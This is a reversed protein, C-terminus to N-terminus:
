SFNHVTILVELGDQRWGVNSNGAVTLIAPGNDGSFGAKGNGAITTIIGDKGVKRIRNKPRHSIFLNGESDVVVGDVWPLIVETAKKGDGIGKFPYLSL